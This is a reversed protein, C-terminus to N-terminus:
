IQNLFLFSSQNLSQDPASNTLMDYLTLQMISLFIHSGPAANTKRKGFHNANYGFGSYDFGNFDFGGFDLRTGDGSNCRNVTCTQSSVYDSNKHTIPVSGSGLKCGRKITM